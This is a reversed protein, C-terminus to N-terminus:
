NLEITGSPISRPVTRNIILYSGGGPPSIQITFEEGAALECQDCAGINVTVEATEGADLVGDGSPENITPSMDEVVTTQTTYTLSVSSGSRLDIPRADMALKLPIHLATIKMGDSTGRPSGSLEFVARSTAVGKYVTEFQHDAEFTSTPGPPHTDPQSGKCGAICMVLVVLSIAFSRLMENM